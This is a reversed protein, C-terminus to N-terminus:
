PDVSSSCPRPWRLGGRLTPTRLKMQSATLLPSKELVLRLPDQTNKLLDGLMVQQEPLDMRQDALSAVLASVRVGENAIWILDSDAVEADLPLRRGDTTVLMGDEMKPVGLHHLGITEWYQSFVPAGSSGELTDTEYLLFGDDRLDVLRNNVTAYQKPGGGPHQIINV